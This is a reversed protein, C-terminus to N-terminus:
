NKVTNKTNAIRELMKINIYDVFDRLYIFLDEESLESIKYLLQQEELKLPLEIRIYSKKKLGLEKWNKIERRKVKAIKTNRTTLKLGSYNSNEEILFGRGDDIILCPRKELAVNIDEGSDSIYIRPILAVWIDGIKAKKDMVDDGM